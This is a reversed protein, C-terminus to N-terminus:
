FRILLYYRLIGMVKSEGVEKRNVYAERKIVTHTHEPFFVYGVGQV